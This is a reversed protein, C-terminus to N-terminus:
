RGVLPGFEASLIESRIKQFVEEILDEQDPHVAKMSVSHEWIAKLTSRERRLEVVIDEATLADTKTTTLTSTM